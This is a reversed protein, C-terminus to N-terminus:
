VMPVNGSVREEERPKIQARQSHGWWCFPMDATPLCWLKPVPSFIQSGCTWVLVARVCALGASWDPRPAVRKSSDAPRHSLASIKKHKRKNTVLSSSPFRNELRIPSFRLSKTPKTVVRCLFFKLHLPILKFTKASCWQCLYTSFTDYTPNHTIM